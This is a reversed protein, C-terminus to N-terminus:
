DKWFDPDTEPTPLPERKIDPISVFDSLKSVPYKRLMKRRSSYIKVGPYLTQLHKALKSPSLSVISPTPDSAIPDSERRFEADDTFLLAAVYVTFAILLLGLMALFLQGNTMSIATMPVGVCLAAFGAIALFIGFGEHNDSSNYGGSGVIFRRRPLVRALIPLFWGLKIFRTWYGPVTLAVLESKEARFGKSGITSNGFARIVGQIEGWKSESSHSSFYAYYGCTCQSRNHVPPKEPPPTRNYSGVHPDIAYGSQVSGDDDLYYRGSGPYTLPKILSGRVSNRQEWERREWEWDRLESEARSCSATNVGPKLVEAHSVGVLRGKRDFNWGRLGFIQGMVFDHRSEFQGRVDAKTIQPNEIQDTM